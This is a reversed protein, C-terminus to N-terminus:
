YSIWGKTTYSSTGSTQSTFTAEGEDTVEGTANAFQGTGGEYKETTSYKVSGGAEFRGSGVISSRLVDGNEATYFGDVTIAVTGDNNPTITQTAEYTAKGLHTLECTGKIRIEGSPQTEFTTRCSGEMPRRSGSAGQGLQKEDM